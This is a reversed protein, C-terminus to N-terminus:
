PKLKKIFVDVVFISGGQQWPCWLYGEWTFFDAYLFRIALIVFIPIFVLLSIIGWTMHRKQKRSLSDKIEKTHTFPFKRKGTDKDNETHQIPIRCLPCIQVYDDVEIGCRSCYPM